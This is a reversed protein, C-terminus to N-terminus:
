YRDRKLKEKVYRKHPTYFLNEEHRAKNIAQNLERTRDNRVTGNDSVSYPFRSIKRYEAM